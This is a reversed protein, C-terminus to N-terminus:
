LKKGLQALIIFYLAFLESYVLKFSKSSNSEGIVNLKGVIEFCVSVIWIKPGYEFKPEYGAGEGWSLCRM